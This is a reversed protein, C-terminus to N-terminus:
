ASDAEVLRRLCRAVVGEMEWRSADEQAAQLREYTVAQFARDAVSALSLVRDTDPLSLEQRWRDLYAERLAPREDEPSSGDLTVVDVFPHALCADTWDFISLREEDHAVNGLHLDGHVLTDPVDLAALEALRRETGPLAALVAAREDADLFRLEPSGAAITQVAEWTAALGRDPLGAARLEPLHGLSGVQLDAITRATPAALGPDPEDEDSVGALPAMLQWGRDPEIALLEPVRGPWLRALVQTSRPESRFWDCAAKFYLPGADTPVLLVASLSWVKVPVDDGTRRRGAEALRDDLWARVEARWPAAFWEPRRGPTPTEGLHTRVAERVAALVDAPGDADELPRWHPSTRAVTGPRRVDLVTPVGDRDLLLEPAVPFAGALDDAPLAAVVGSEDVRVRDDDVLVRWRPRPEESGSVPGHQARDGERPSDGRRAVLLTGRM